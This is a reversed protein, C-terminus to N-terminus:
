DLNKTEKIIVQIVLALPLSLILGLPGFILTFGFQSILTLGPLLNTKKKMISPMIIYSEINQIIIYSGLVLLPKWLNDLLAISIPFIASIVPGINPIINLVMAIIANSVVYKIDLISLVILSLIGVFLSSIVMSFMWNSLAINSKEIINRFKNRLAKPTIFLIGEKYSNPEISIMLSVVLVFIIRVLGSGLNGALNIINIFSEQIAKAITAGDPLVIFDNFIKYMDFINEADNGYFIRNIRELNSNFIFNIRTLINPVDILIENVEKIFPPLVLLFSALIIFLLFLLVLFLSISRPIKLTNKVKNTLNCIINAIVLSCIILLLFDRLSWFILFCISIVLIKFFISNNM